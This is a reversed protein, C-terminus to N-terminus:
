QQHILIKGNLFKILFDQFLRISRTVTSTVVPTAQEMGWVIFKTLVMNETAGGTHHVFLDLDQAGSTLTAFSLIHTHLEDTADYSRQNSLASGDDIVPELITSGGQRVWMFTNQSLTDINLEGQGFILADQGTSFSDTITAAQVDTANAVSVTGPEHVYLDPWKARRFVLLASERHDNAATATDDRTEISWTHSAASVSPALDFFVRVLEETASEGEESWDGAVLSGDLMLRVESNINVADMATQVFAFAVWDEVPQSTLDITVSARNTSSYTTTNAVATTSKDWFWDTNEVGFDSLRIVVIEAKELFVNTGNTGTLWDLDIDNITGGLNVRGMWSVAREIGGAGPDIRPEAANTIVSGAGGYTLEWEVENTSAVAFVGFFLILVDDNAQFGASTLEAASVTMVTAMTNVSRSQQTTIREHYHVAEAATAVHPFACVVLAACIFSFRAM